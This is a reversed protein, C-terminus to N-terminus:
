IEICSDEKDSKLIDLYTRGGDPEIILYKKAYDYVELAEEGIEFTINRHEDQNTKIVHKQFYTNYIEKLIIKHSSFRNLSRFSFEKFIQDLESDTLKIKKFNIDFINEMKNRDAIKNFICTTDTLVYKLRSFLMNYNWDWFDGINGNKGEENFCKQYFYKQLKVKDYLTACQEICDLQILSAEWSQIDEITDYSFGCQTDELAKKLEDKLSEEIEFKETVQKYKAKQCFLQFSRKMPTMKEVLINKFLGKYVPCDMHSCDNLFTENHRMIGMYCVNIILTSLHRARYSVQIMDRPTNHTAIFLFKSDFDLGEYNVGCTIINNTLVFDCDGWAENVNQLGQKLTDDVDANYFIGNKNTRKEILAHLQEMSPYRYSMKKLPYFIFLKKGQKLQTLIDELMTLYDKIYHVDRTSPEVKRCYIKYCDKNQELEHIFNITKTTIFADLFIVKKANKLVRLFTNWITKKLKLNGQEMFDGYFKDLVTEIEDIVIIKHNRETLYHLSNLVAILQDPKNLAGLDKKKKNVNLYHCVDIGEDLLRKQTNHALAKNPAIWLFEPTSQREEKHEVVKVNKQKQLSFHVDCKCNEKECNTCEYDDVDGFQAHIFNPTECHCLLSIELGCNCFTETWKVEMIKPKLFLCTQATKGGGMGINFVNYKCTSEFCEPTITEILHINDKPLDFTQSFDRFAKEKHMHPYYYKLITYIKPFPVEPFKHLNEWHTHWKKYVSNIDPHKKQLWSLFKEFSINQYFCFRAVLHTYDHPFSSSDSNIPLLGLIQEANLDNINQVDSPVPLILKPLIGINFPKKSKEIMVKEEMKEDLQPFPLSCPNVFCTICHKKLDPNEIIKQVRCDDPKSQNVCKMGQNNKYVVIDFAEMREDHICKVITRVHTKEQVNHIVYNNLAIHLSAKEPTHSGSIAMDSNPFYENIITKVREIYDNFDSVPSKEDIDFYVKHPYKSIIEYLGHNKTLTNLFQEPKTFGYKRGEKVSKKSLLIVDTPEAHSIAVAQAGGENKTLNKWFRSNLYKIEKVKETTM